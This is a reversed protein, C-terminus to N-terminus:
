VVVLEGEAIDYNQEVLEIGLQACTSRLYMLDLQAYIRPKLMRNIGGPQDCPQLYATYGAYTMIFFLIHFFSIFGIDFSGPEIPIVRVHNKALLILFEEDFHSKYCDLLLLM